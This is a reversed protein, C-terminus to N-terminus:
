NYALGLDSRSAAPLSFQFRTGKGPESTVKLGSDHLDLLRQVIRLGLGGGVGYVRKWATYSQNSNIQEQKALSIGSGTDSFSVAIKQNPRQSIEITILDDCYTHKLANSLLNTLVRTTMAIDAQVLLANPQPHSHESSNAIVQLRKGTEECSPAYDQVIDHTLELLSFTEFQPRMDGNDLQTLEFLDAILSRLRQTHNFATHLYRAREEGDFRDGHSILTELYSQLTTLPTRLDHSVSAFLERRSSDAQQLQQNKLQLARTMSEYATTLEDLEDVPNSMHSVHGEISLNKMHKSLRLRLKRLRRTLLFFLSGAALATILLISILSYALSRSSSHSALGDRLSLKQQSALVVYVYGIPETTQDPRNDVTNEPYIPFASFITKDDNYLPNEALLPLQRQDSLYHHVASMDIRNRKLPANDSATASINGLTDLAYVEVSPNLMMLHDSLAKLRETSVTNGIALNANQAIYMAVPEHLQQNLELHYQNQSQYSLWFVTSGSVLLLLTIGVLLQSFLSRM